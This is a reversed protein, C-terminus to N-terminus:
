ESLRFAIVRNDVFTPILIMNKDPIYEFDAVNFKGVSDMIEIIEGTPTITYLLGEWHSVLLNGNGLRKIGDIVGSGLSALRDIKKTKLHVSKLFPDGPNGGFFLNDDHIYTGNPRWVDPGELWVEFKGKSFRYIKSAMWDSPSTDSIYFNGKGDVSVDNPFDCDPIPIRRIIKGSRMEIETLCKRELTYLKDKFIAMGAPAHLGSVWEKEIIRGNLDLKSIYGTFKSADTEQLNARNDFNTVYLVERKRDYVVSEPTLFEQPTEWIKEVRTHDEFPRNVIGDLKVMFGWGGYSEKIIMFIENLGKELTLFVADNLGLVGVFSPDRSRYASMGYFLKSGNHFITIEDSYGFRMHVDQRKDSRIWTRAFVCDPQDMSRKRYRSIDVLGNPEPSVEEWQAYFITYFRAYPLSEIDIQAAPYSRSIEWDMLMGEPPASKATEELILNDHQRIKFNSFYATGRTWGRLGIAGRSMGHKLAIVVLAPKEMDNWFINAQSGMIEMKLHNWTETPIDAANTYGEGSYLQWNSQGNIHPVYQLADTYFPARHPRIYFIEYDDESQMRFIIGPYTRVDRVAIDCEIVGNEFVVDKLLATGTLADRGQYETVEADLLKWNTTDWPVDVTEHPMGAFGTAAAICLLTFKLATKM